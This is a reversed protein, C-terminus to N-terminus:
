DDEEYWGKEVGYQMEGEMILQIQVSTILRKSEKAAALVFNMQETEDVDGDLYTIEGTKEDEVLLGQEELFNDMEDLVFLVDDQNMGNRDAEPIFNWIYELQEREEPELLSMEITSNNDM